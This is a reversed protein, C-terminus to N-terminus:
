SRARAGRRPVSPPGPHRLRVRVPVSRDPRSPAPRRPRRPPARRPRRRRSPARAASRHDERRAPIAGPLRERRRGDVVAGDGRHAGGRRAAACAWACEVLLLLPVRRDARETGDHSARRLVVLAVPLERLVHEALRKKGGGGSRRTCRRGGRWRVRAADGPLRARPHEQPEGLQRDVGAVLARTSGDSRAVYVGASTAGKSLASCRGSQQCRSVYMRAQAHLPERAPLRSSAAASKARTAGSLGYWPVAATAQARHPSPKFLFILFIPSTSCHM